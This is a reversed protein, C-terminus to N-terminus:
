LFNLFRIKLVSIFKRSVLPVYLTQFLDLCHGTDLILSYTEIGEVHARM